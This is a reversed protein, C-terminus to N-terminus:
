HGHSLWTKGVRPKRMRQRLMLAGLCSSSFSPPYGDYHANHPHCAEETEHLPNKCYRQCFLGERGASYAKTVVWVLDNFTCRKVGPILDCQGALEVSNEGHTISMGDTM